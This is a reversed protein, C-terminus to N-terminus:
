DLSLPVGPYVAVESGEALFASHPPADLCSAFEPGYLSAADAELFARSTQWVRWPPHEVRYERTGGDRQRAYGWYHEAIFEEFSGEALPLPNGQPTVGLQVWTGKDRWASKHRWGYEVPTDSKLTGGAEETRHRMPMAVFNEGYVARAVWAIARKPVIEKVFVVGRRTEGGVERRVYFRLNVEEFERHFPISLGLLRTDLYRFGVMSVFARGEFTDLLTGAPVHPELIAPAITYNLM